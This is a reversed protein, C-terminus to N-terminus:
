KREFWEAPLPSENERQRAWISSAAAQLAMALAQATAPDLRCGWRRLAEGEGQSFGVDVMTDHDGLQVKFQDPRM